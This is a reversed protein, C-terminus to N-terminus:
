TTAGLTALNRLANACRSLALRQDPARWSWHAAELRAMMTRPAQGVLGKAARGNSVTTCARLGARGSSSATRFSACDAGIRRAPSRAASARRWLAYQAELWARGSIPDSQPSAWAGLQSDRPRTAFYADSEAASVREVAGEIRVQRELEAWFFLLAVGAGDALERGKRSLYNTHFVFGRADMGKLLVMRAAPRGAAGVSALTMANAAPLAAAVAERFWRDFQRFPDPDAGREDLAARRYDIRLQAPDILPGSMRTSPHRRM